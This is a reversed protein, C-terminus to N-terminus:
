CVGSQGAAQELVTPQCVGSQGPLFALASSCRRKPTASGVEQSTRFNPQDHLVKKKDVVRHQSTEEALRRTIEKNGDRRTGRTRPRINQDEEQVIWQATGQSTDHVSVGVPSLDEESMSCLTWEGDEHHTLDTHRM